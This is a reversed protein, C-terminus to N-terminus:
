MKMWTNGQGAPAAGNGESHAGGSAEAWNPDSLTEIWRTSETLMAQMFNSFGEQNMTTVDWAAQLTVVEADANLGLTMARTEALLDNAALLRLALAERGEAPLIGVGAQAVLMSGGPQLLLRVRMPGAVLTGAHGNDLMELSFGNDEAYKGALEQLTGM